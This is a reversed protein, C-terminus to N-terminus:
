ISKILRLMLRSNSQVFESEVSYGAKYYFNLVRENNSADTTLYVFNCDSKKIQEEFDYILLKGANRGLFDPMVAISSLLAADLISKPGDGRYFVARLLRRSVLIPSNLLAPVAALGFVFWRRQKLQQFFTVPHFSGATFGVIVGCDDEIVRLLGHPHYMFSKYLQKLFSSGLLTLFFDPFAAIHVHVIRNIDGLVADRVIM